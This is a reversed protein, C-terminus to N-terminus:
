RSTEKVNGQYKRSTEKFNGIYNLPSNRRKVSFTHDITSSTFSESKLLPHFIMWCRLIFIPFEKWFNREPFINGEDGLLNSVDLVSRKRQCLIQKDKNFPSQTNDSSQFLHSKCNQIESFAYVLKEEKNNKELMSVYFCLFVSISGGLLSPGMSDYFMTKHPKREQELIEFAKWGQKTEKRTKIENSSSGENFPLDKM